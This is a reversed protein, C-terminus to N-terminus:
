KSSSIREYEKDILELLRQSDMGTKLMSAIMSGGAGVGEKVFGESYARLGSFKSDELKPNISLVPIDSISKVIELLNASKDDIVYSTTGLATRDKDYGITEALALVATMQTGGALIVNTIESASSLMGAVFPIMPDGANAIIMFPDKSDSRKLAKEVIENKLSEPNKPMSSSVHANIGFSKLVALATTTGGPISEGIILCDTCSALTRGLIRGDNIAQEVTSRELAPEVSINKGFPLNTEVYPMKPYIESGANIVIKPINAFDLVARTLLAPTPKGDPTMPIIDITKCFGYQLFESDAPPTLKILDPEAGAVTIGPIEATETYSTVFSFLFHKREISKIFKQGKEENCHIEIDSM